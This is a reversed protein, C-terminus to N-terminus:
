DDREWWWRWSRRDDIAEIAEIASTEFNPSAIDAKM